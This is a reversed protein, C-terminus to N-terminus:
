SQGKVHELLLDKSSCPLDYAADTEFNAQPFLQQSHSFETNSLKEATPTVPTSVALSFGKNSDFSGGSLIRFKEEPKPSLNQTKTIGLIIHLHVLQKNM